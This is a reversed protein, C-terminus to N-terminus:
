LVLVLEAPRLILLLRKLPACLAPKPTEAVVAWAVRLSGLPALSARVRYVRNFGTIVKGKDRKYKVPNVSNVPFLTRFCFRRITEGEPCLPGALQPFPFPVALGALGTLPKNEFLFANGPEGSVAGVRYDAARVRCDPGNVV